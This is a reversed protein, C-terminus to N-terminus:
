RSGARAAEYAETLAADEAIAYLLDEFSEATMGHSELIVTARGPEKEIELSIRAVERAKEVSPTAEAQAAPAPAAAKEEAAKPACGFSSLVLATVLIPLGPLRMWRPTM